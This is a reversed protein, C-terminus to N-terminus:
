PVFQDDEAVHTLSVTQFLLVRAAVRRRLPVEVLPSENRRQAAAPIGFQM